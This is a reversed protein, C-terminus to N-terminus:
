HLTEKPLKRILAFLVTTWYNKGWESMPRELVEHVKDIRWELLELETMINGKVRM